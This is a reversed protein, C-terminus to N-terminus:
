EKNGCRSRLLERGLCVFALVVKMALTRNLERDRVRYIIGMGGRAVEGELAYRDARNPTGAEAPGGGPGGSPSVEASAIVTAQDEALPGADDLTLTVEADDGFLDRVSQHLAPSITAAQALQFVSHLKQLEDAIQPRQRCLEELTKRFDSHRERLLAEYAAVAEAFADGTKNASEPM